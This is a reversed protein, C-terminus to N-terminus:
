IYQYGLAIFKTPRLHEAIIPITFASLGGIGEYDDGTLCARLPYRWKSTDAPISFPEQVDSQGHIIM